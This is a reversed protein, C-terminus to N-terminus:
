KPKIAKIQQILPLLKEDISSEEEGIETKYIFWREIHEVSSNPTLKTLPGLSELELMDSDTYTECNCGFDPYRADPNFDFQKIFLEKNLYYAAWGPTNLMGVKQKTKANPNQKLQIYKTGWVWRPDKMDTYHWLVLPRAPLLYDSHPRYEEQPFIARGNQAMVTLCWPAIEIDWLNKNILRHHFMVQNKKQNLTIEIEKVIKTTEVIPQTLKLTKSDCSYAVPVNDPYYTRSIAEPAHWLRHGGYIRWENGSTKGLQEKYEKFINQGNVFGFRIIRPGVDTTVILEIKGNSLRICNSWGDYKIKEM